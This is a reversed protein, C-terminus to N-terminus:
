WWPMETSPECFVVGETRPAPFTTTKKDGLSATLGLWQSFHWLDEQVRTCTFWLVHHLVSLVGVCDQFSFCATTVEVFVTLSQVDLLLMNMVRRLWVQQLPATECCLQGVAAVHYQGSGASANKLAPCNPWHILGPCCWCVFSLLLTTNLQSKDM